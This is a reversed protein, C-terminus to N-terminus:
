GPSSTGSLYFWDPNKQLLLWYILMPFFLKISSQQVQKFTESHVTRLFGFYRSIVRLLQTKDCTAGTALRGICIAPHGNSVLQEMMSLSSGVKPRSKSYHKQNFFWCSKDIPGYHTHNSILEDAARGSGCGVKVRFWQKESDNFM